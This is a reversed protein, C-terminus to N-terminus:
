RGIVAQIQEVPFNDIRGETQLRRLVGTEGGLSWTATWRQTVIIDYNGVVQYDHAIGGDPWPKGEFEYPGGKEGDGWDVTYAGNAVIVLPGFATNSRYTYTIAGRTELYAPKGTIARGPAIAPRPKPLPVQEWHRMAVMSRTEQPVPQGPVGPQVPCPPYELPQLGHVERVTQTVPDPQLSDQPQTGEQYYGTSVCPQGDAGTTLRNYAIYRKIPESGTGVLRASPQTNPPEQAQNSTGTSGKTSPDCLVHDSTADKSPQPDANPESAKSGTTPGLNGSGHRCPDLHQDAAVTTSQAAFLMVVSVAIALKRM